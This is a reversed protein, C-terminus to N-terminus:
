NHNTVNATRIMWDSVNDYRDTATNLTHPTLGYVPGHSIYLFRPQYLALAPADAQWAKLFPEYKITRLQEGARTRGAELATDATASDYESLNLRSASRIDNQSSDWYVFVDPDVGLTIGYLIADYDHNVLANHFSEPDELQVQVQVGVAAWQQKLQATVMRAEATDPATLGFSLPHGGKTLTGDTGAKWGAKALAAKAVDPKGTVEAYKAQYAFNDDLLPEKVRAAPYVLQSIIDNPRAAKVLAQRVTKDKLPSESSTRFFVMEAATLPFNYVMTSSAQRIDTPVTALGAMANLQNDRYSALMDDQRAFADVTFSKLKPAGRWYQAFPALGIHQQADAPSDGSVQIDQWVFPGAGIPQTNFAASRMGSMPIDKLLHQPVIGNTLNYVFSSLPNPLKFQVTRDNVATVTIDSWDARLPSEADPNQIVHYTYVVDQATLPKGDQWTLHPRLTVTYLQGTKDVQWSQALDGTLHNKNDFTFLGAFVLHSVAQDVDNTAYLPNANTFSGIIGETFIGGPVPQQTQYYGSLASNQAAVCGILLLFLIIWGAMFRGVQGFKHFRGFFYRELTRDTQQGVAAAHRQQKRLRRKM